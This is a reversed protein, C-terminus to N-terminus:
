FAKGAVLIGMPATTCDSAVVTVGCLTERYLGKVMVPGAKVQRAFVAVGLTRLAMDRSGPFVTFENNEIFELSPTQLTVLGRMGEALIVTPRTM